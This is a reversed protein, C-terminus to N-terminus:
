YVDQRASFVLLNMFRQNIHALKNIAANLTVAHPAAGAAGEAAFSPPLKIVVGDPKFYSSRTTPVPTDGADV